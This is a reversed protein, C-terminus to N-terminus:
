QNTIACLFLNSLINGINTHDTYTRIEKGGSSVEDSYLIISLGESVIIKAISISFRKFVEECLSCAVLPLWNLQRVWTFQASAYGSIVYLGTNAHTM